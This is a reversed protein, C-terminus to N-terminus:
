PWNLVNVNIGSFGDDISVQNSVRVDLSNGVRTLLDLYKGEQDGDANLFPTWIPVYGSSLGAEKMNSVEAIDVSVLEQNDWDVAVTIPEGDDDQLQTLIQYGIWANGVIALVGIWVGIAIIKSM